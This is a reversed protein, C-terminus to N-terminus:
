EGKRAKAKAFFSEAKVSVREHTGQAIQGADDWASVKFCYKRGEVATLEAQATVTMGEVTPSTHGISIKTGVTTFIDELYTQALAAAANEMLAVVMPTAFVDVSGSGVTSALQAKTVTTQKTQTDGIVPEKM